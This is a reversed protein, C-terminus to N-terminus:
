YLTLFFFFKNLYLVFDVQNAKLNHFHIGINLKKKM